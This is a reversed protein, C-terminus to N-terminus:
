NNFDVTLGFFLAFENISAVANKQRTGQLTARTNPNYEVPDSYNIVQLMEKNRGFTYQLRTVLSLLKSQHM